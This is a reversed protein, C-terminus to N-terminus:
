LILWSIAFDQLLDGVTLEQLLIVSFARTHTLSSGQECPMLQDINPLSVQPTVKLDHIPTIEDFSLSRINWSLGELSSPPIGFVRLVDESAEIKVPTIKPQSPSTVNGYERRQIKFPSSESEDM